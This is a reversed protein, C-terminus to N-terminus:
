INWILYNSLSEKGNSLLRGASPDCGVSRKVRMGNQTDNGNILTKMMVKAKLTIPLMLGLPDYISSVQSLIMRRTFTTPFYEECEKHSM